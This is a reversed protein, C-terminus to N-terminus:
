PVVLPGDLPQVLLREGHMKAAEPLIVNELIDVKEETLIDEEQCVMEKGFFMNIHEGASTCFGGLGELDDAFVKIRLPAWDSGVSVTVPSAPEERGTVEGVNRPLRDFVCHHPVAIVLGGGTCLLLLLASCLLRLQRLMTLLKNRANLVIGVHVAFTCVLRCYLLFLFCPFCFPVLLLLCARLLLLLRACRLDTASRKASWLRTCCTQVWNNVCVCVGDLHWLIDIAKPRLPTHDAAALLPTDGEAVRCAEGGIAACLYCVPTTM